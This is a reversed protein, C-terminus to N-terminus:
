SPSCLAAGEDIWGTAMAGRVVPDVTFRHNSDMQAARNNYARYVPITSPPCQGNQPVLAYFAIGEYGWGLFPAGAASAVARQAQEVQRLGQCESADGTYFHSNPGRAYFRCVPRATPPADNASVWANFRQGTRKWQGAADLLAIEDAGAAIFYHDLTEQYFEVVAVQTSAQFDRTFYRKPDGGTTPRGWAELTYNGPRLGGVRLSGFTSMGAPAAGGAPPTALYDFDVRIVNGRTSVKMTRADFYAASRVLVDVPEFAHPQVPVVYVGWSSPPVVPLSASTTIPPSEPANIDFIRARVTYNGPPLEGLPVPMNGFNPPFPGFSGGFYEYDITITNGSRTYRTAPLFTPDANRLEVSIAQGYAPVAPSPAITPAGLAGLSAAATLTALMISSSCSMANAKM